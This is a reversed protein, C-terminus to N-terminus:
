EFNQTLRVYYGRGFLRYTSPDTTANFGIDLFPPEEDTLNTVGVAINTGTREFTYNAVLDHYLISDVKQIYIPNGDADTANGPGCNCFTDADLGSIYEGLYGVSASGRLWQLSYNAKDTAYTGGDEATPDTYRGSLDDEGSVPNATKTRELLHSWLLAAEWQGIGSDMSLRIETDVGRAGQEAVNLDLDVIRNISYDANRTIKACQEQDGALYCQDLIFQVGLSSIGDEIDVQWYDITLSLDSAGFEPTWVFGATFTEGTEPLVDPQGGVRSRVQSDIQVGVQDCQAPL